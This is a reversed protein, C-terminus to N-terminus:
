QYCSFGTENVTSVHDGGGGTWHTSVIIHEVSDIRRWPLVLHM